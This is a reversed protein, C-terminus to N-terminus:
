TACATGSITTGSPLCRMVTPPQWTRGSLIGAVNDAKYLRMILRFARGAPSPLWNRRQLPNRPATPQIYVDLSGDPNYHLTSRNNILYIKAKNPVLLGHSDYLTM